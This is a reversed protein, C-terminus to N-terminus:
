WRKKVKSGAECRCCDRLSAISIATFIDRVALQGRDINCFAVQGEAAGSSARKGPIGLINSQCRVAHGLPWCGLIDEEILGDHESSHM